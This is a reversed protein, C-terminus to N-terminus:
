HEEESSVERAAAPPSLTSTQSPSSFAKRHEEQVSTPVESLEQAVVLSIPRPAMKILAVQLSPLYNILYFM